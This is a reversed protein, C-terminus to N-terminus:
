HKYEEEVNTASSAVKLESQGYASTRGKRWQEMTPVEVDDFRKDIGVSQLVPSQTFPVLKVNDDFYFVGLRTYSRQDPPPQIVRHITARYFGESLFEMANGANIVLANPVHKVWKWQGDPFPGTLWRFTSPTAKSGHMRKKTKQDRTVSM